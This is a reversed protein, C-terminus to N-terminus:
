PWPPPAPPAPQWANSRAGAAGYVSGWTISNLHGVIQQWTAANEPEGQQISRLGDVIRTLVPEIIKGSDSVPAPMGTGIVDAAAFGTPDDATTKARFVQRAYYEYSRCSDMIVIQYRELYAAPDKLLDLSGYSSHGDYLVLQYGGIAKRFSSSYWGNEYLDITVRVKDRQLIYRLSEGDTSPEGKLKLTEELSRKNGAAFESGMPVIAANFGVVGEGDLKNMLQDYEPFVTRPEYVETIRIKGDQLPLDCVKEESDWSKKKDPAFYYYYNYEGLGDAGEACRDSVRGLVDLPDEPLAVTLEREPLEELTPEADAGRRRLMDISARYGLRVLGGKSEVSLIEVRDALQNLHWDHAAAGNKGFKLQTDVLKEQLARDTALKEWEGEAKHVVVAELTGGVEFSTDGVWGTDAKDPAGRAGRGEDLQPGCGAIILAVVWLLRRQM